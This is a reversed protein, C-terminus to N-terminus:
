RDKQNNRLPNYVQSSRSALSVLVSISELFATRILSKRWRFTNPDTYVNETQLRSFTKAWGQDAFAPGISLLNGSGHDLFLSAPTDQQATVRPIPFADCVLSALESMCPHTFPPICIKALKEEESGLSPPAPPFQPQSAPPEVVSEQVQEFDGFADDNFDGFDDQATESEAPVAAVGFDGFGDDDQAPAPSKNEVAVDEPEATRGTGNESGDNGDDQTVNMFTEHCVAHRREGVLM